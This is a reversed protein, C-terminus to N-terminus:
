KSLKILYSNKQTSSLVMEKKTLKRIEWIGFSNSNETEPVFVARNCYNTGMYTGCNLPSDAGSFKIQSNNDFFSASYNYGEHNVSVTSANKLFTIRKYVGDGNYNILDTSDIGNVEYLTLTWSGLINKPGRRECGGEPYKKCNFLLLTSVFLIFYIFVSRM